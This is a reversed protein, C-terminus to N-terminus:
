KLTPQRVRASLASSALAPSCAEDTVGHHRLGAFFFTAVLTFGGGGGYLGCEVCVWRERKRRPGARLRKWRRHGARTNTGGARRLPSQARRSSPWGRRGRPASAGGSTPCSRSTPSPSRLLEDATINKPQPCPNPFIFEIINIQQFFGIVIYRMTQCTLLPVGGGLSRSPFALESPAHNKEGRTPLPSGSTEADPYFRTELRDNIVHHRM